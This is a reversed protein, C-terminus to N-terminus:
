LPGGQNLTARKNAEHNVFWATADLDHQLVTRIIAAEDYSLAFDHALRSVTTELPVNVPPANPDPPPTYGALSPMQLNTM